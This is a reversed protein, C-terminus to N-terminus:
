ERMARKSFHNKIEPLIKKLIRARKIKPAM